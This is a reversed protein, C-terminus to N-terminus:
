AACMKRTKAENKIASIVRFAKYSKPQSGLLTCEASSSDMTELHEGHDTTPCKEWFDADQAIKGGPHLFEGGFFHLATQLRFHVM